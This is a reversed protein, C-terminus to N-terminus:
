CHHWWLQPTLPHPKIISDFILYTEKFNTTTKMVADMFNRNYILLHLNNSVKILYNVLWSKTHHLYLTGLWFVTLCFLAWPGFIFCLLVCMFTKMSMKGGKWLLLVIHYIPYLLYQQQVNCQINTNKIIFLRKKIHKSAYHIYPALWMIKLYVMRLKISATRKAGAM